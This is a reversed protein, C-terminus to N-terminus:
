GSHWGRSRIVGTFLTHSESLFIDARRLQTLAELIFIDAGEVLSLEYIRDRYGSEQISELNEKRARGNQPSEVIFVM